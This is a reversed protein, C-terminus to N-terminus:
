KADIGEKTLEITGFYSPDRTVRHKIHARLTGTTFKKPLSRKKCEEVCQETLEVWSGGERVLGDMFEALSGSHVFRKSTGPVAVAAAKKKPATPKKEVVEAEEEDEIPPIVITHKKPRKDDVVPAAAEPKEKGGNAFEDILEQTEESFVDIKPNIYKIGDLIGARLDAISGSEDIPPDLGMVNNMEKATKRMQKESVM